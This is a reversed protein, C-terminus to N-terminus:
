LLEIQSFDDVVAHTQQNYAKERATDTRAVWCTQFGAKKAADLENGRDSVFLLAEPPQGVAKAIATYSAAQTKKGTRPDFFGSFLDSLDGHDSYTVLLRQDYAASASFTFLARHDDAWGQLTAVADPYVHGELDGARYADLWLLRVLEALAPLAEGQALSAEALESLRDDDAEPEDVAHRFVDAAAAVEARGRHRALWDGFHQEAYPILVDATFRADSITGEIDVVVALVEPSLSGELHM